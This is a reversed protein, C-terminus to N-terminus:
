DPKNSFQSGTGTISTVHATTGSLTASITVGTLATPTTTSNVHSSTVEVRCAKEDRNQCLDLNKGKYKWYTNSINQVNIVSYTQTSDFEFVYMDVLHKPRTFAAASVAIVVAIIGTIYRNPLTETQFKISSRILM